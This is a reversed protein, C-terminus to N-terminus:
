IFFYFFCKLLYFFNSGKQRCYGFKWESMFYFCVVWGYSKFPGHDVTLVIFPIYRAIIYATYVLLYTIHLIHLKIHCTCDTLYLFCFLLYLPFFLDMHCSCHHYLSLNQVTKSVKINPKQHHMLLSILKCKRMRQQTIINDWNIINSSTIVPHDVWLTYVCLEWLYLVYIFYAARTPILLKVSSREYNKIDQLCFREWKRHLETM